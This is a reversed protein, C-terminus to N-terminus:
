KIVNDDKNVNIMISDDIDDIHMSSLLATVSCFRVFRPAGITITGAIVCITITM